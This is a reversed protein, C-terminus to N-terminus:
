VLLPESPLAMSKGVACISKCAIPPRPPAVLVYSKSNTVLALAVPNGSAELVVGACIVTVVSSIPNSTM